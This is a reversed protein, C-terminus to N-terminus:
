RPCEVLSLLNNPEEGDAETKIYENGSRSKAVIVNVERGAKRVFFDYRRSKIAAIAEPQTLSWRGGDPNKGGINRIREYPSYRDDKNICTVEHRTTM